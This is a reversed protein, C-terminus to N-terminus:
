INFIKFEEIEEFEKSTDVLIKHKKEFVEYLNDDETPIPNGMPDFVYNLAGAFAEGKYNYSSICCGLVWINNEIARAQLLKKWINDRRMPWWAVVILIDMGLKLKIERAGEPFRIDNCILFGIRKGKFELASYFNGKEWIKDEGNPYFLHVKEYFAVEKGSYWVSLRNKKNKTYSGFVFLIKKYKNSFKKFFSEIKEPEIKQKYGTLFIEPFIIIDSGKRVARQVEEKLFKLNEKFDRCHFRSLYAKM